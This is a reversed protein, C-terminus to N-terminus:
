GAHRSSRFRRVLWIWILRVALSSAAMTISFVVVFAIVIAAVAQYILLRTMM